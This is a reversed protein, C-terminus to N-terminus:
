AEPATGPLGFVVIPSEIKRAARSFLPRENRRVRLHEDGVPRRSTVAIARRKAGTRAAFVQQAGHVLNRWREVQITVNVLVTTKPTGAPGRECVDGSPFALTQRAHDVDVRRRKRDNGHTDGRRAPNSSLRNRANRDALRRATAVDRTIEAFLVRVAAATVGRAAKRTRAIAVALQVGARGDADAGIGDVASFVGTVGLSVDAVVESVM